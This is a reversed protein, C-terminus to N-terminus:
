NGCADAGKGGGSTKKGGPEPAGACGKRAPNVACFGALVEEATLEGLDLKTTNNVLFTPSAKIELARTIAHDEKLLSAGEAGAACEDLLKVSMMKKKACAKWDPDRIDENRCAVFDLYKNKKAYYKRACAQVIDEEVEGPGHLSCYWDGDGKKVCDKEGTPVIWGYEKPTSVNVIFRLTFSVDKGLKALAGAAAEEAEMGYPCRSMVFLDLTGPTEPRCPLAGACAGDDCDAKGDGDDDVGNACLEAAPDFGKGTKMAAMGEVEKFWARAEEMEEDDLVSAPFVFLPLSIAGLKGYLAKGEADKLWDLEEYEIGPYIEQFNEIGNQVYEGCRPCRADSVITMTVDSPPPCDARLMACSPPYDGEDFACCIMERLEDEDRAGTAVRKDVFITPSAMAHREMAHKASASLLKKGTGDALCPRMEDPDLGAAAACEEWNHPISSMDGAMCAVVKMYAYGEPWTDAACLEQVNGEVEAAGHLSAFDGPALEQVLFHQHFDISGGMEELIAAMADQAQRAYPCKSMVFLEVKVKRKPGAPAAQQGQEGAGRAGAAVQAQGKKGSPCGGLALTLAFVAVAAARVARRHPENTHM